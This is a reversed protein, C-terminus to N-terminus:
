DKVRCVGNCHPCGPRRVMHDRAQATAIERQVNALLPAVGEGGESHLRSFVSSARAGELNRPPGTIAHRRGIPQVPTHDGQAMFAGARYGKLLLLVRDPQKIVGLKWSTEQELTPIDNATACSPGATECDSIAASLSRRSIRRRLSLPMRASRFRASLPKVVSSTMTARTIRSIAKSTRNPPIVLERPVARSVAAQILAIEIASDCRAAIM